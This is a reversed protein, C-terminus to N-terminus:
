STSVRRLSVTKTIWYHVVIYYGNSLSGERPTLGSTRKTDLTLAMRIGTHEQSSDDHQEMRLIILENQDSNTCEIIRDLEHNDDM